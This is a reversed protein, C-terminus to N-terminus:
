AHISEHPEKGLWYDLPRAISSAESFELDEEGKRRRRKGFDAGETSHNVKGKISTGGFSIGLQM